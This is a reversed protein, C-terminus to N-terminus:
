AQGVPGVRHTGTTATRAHGSWAPCAAWWRGTGRRHPPGATPVRARSSLAYAQPPSCVQVRKGFDEEEYSERTPFRAWLADRLARCTLALCLADDEHVEDTVLRLTGRTDLTRFPSAALPDTALRYEALEMALDAGVAATTDTDVAWTYCTAVATYM